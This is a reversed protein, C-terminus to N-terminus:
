SSLTKLYGKDSTIWDSGSKRPNQEAIVYAKGNVLVARVWDTLDILVEKSLLQGDRTMVAEVRTGRLLEDVTVTGQMDRLQKGPQWIFRGDNGTKRLGMAALAGIIGSGDGTIGELRVGCSDALALAAESTLLSSKARRGWEEIEEPIKSIEALCLGASAGPMAERTLFKKCFEWLKDPNSTEVEVCNSSNQSTYPISPDFWLQHRTVGHVKGHGALVLESAM